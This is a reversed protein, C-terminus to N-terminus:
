RRSRRAPRRRRVLGLAGLGLVALTALEPVPATPYSTGSAGTVTYRSPDVARGNADFLQVAALTLTSSFDAAAYLDSGDPYDALQFPYQTTLTVNARQERNGDIAFSDTALYEAVRSGQGQPFFLFDPNDGINGYVAATARQAPDAPRTGELFFVYKATYGFQAEGGFKLVDSFGAFSLLTIQDPSGADNVTTGDFYRPNAANSYTNQARFVMRSRLRGYESQAFSEGTFTMTQTAGARDLGTFSKTPAIFVAQGTTSFSQAMPAVRNEGDIINEGNLVVLTSRSQAAALSVLTTLAILTAFRSATSPHSAIM